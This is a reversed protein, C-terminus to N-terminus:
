RGGGQPPPPETSDDPVPEEDVPPEELTEPPKRPSVKWTNEEERSIVAQLATALMDAIENQEKDYVDMTVRQRLDFSGDFIFTMSRNKSLYAIVDELPKDTCKAALMDAALKKEQEPDPGANSGIRPAVGMGPHFMPRGAPGGRRSGQPFRTQTGPAPSALKPPPQGPSPGQSASQSTVPGATSGSANPAPAVLPPAATVALPSTAAPVKATGTEPGAATHNSAGQTPKRPGQVEPTKPASETAVEQSSKAPKNPPAAPSAEPRGEPLYDFKLSFHLEGGRQERRESGPYIREFYASRILGEEFDLLGEQDKAIGEGVISIGEAQIEPRLATMMVAPPVVVELRNFLQTWSFIRRRIADNAFDAQQRLGNFDLKTLKLSLREEDRALSDRKHQKLDLEQQYQQVTSGSQFFLWFNLGTVAVLLLAASGFGVWYLTNNRFPRTALNIELLKM